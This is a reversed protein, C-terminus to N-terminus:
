REVIDILESLNEICYDAESCFGNHVYVTTMGASNGGLIDATVNDGVMFMPEDNTNCSKAIDFLEKRPKDYGEVASIVYGDFYKDIGLM